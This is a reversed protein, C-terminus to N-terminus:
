QTVTIFRRALEVWNSFNRFVTTSVHPKCEACKKIAQAVMAKTQESSIENGVAPIGINCLEAFMDCMLKQPIEADQCFGAFKEMPTTNSNEYCFENVYQLTQEKLSQIDALCEDQYSGRPLDQFAHLPSYGYLTVKHSNRCFEPLHEGPNECNIAPGRAMLSVRYKFDLNDADLSIANKSTFQLIVDVTTNEPINLQNLASVHIENSCDEATIVITIFGLHDPVIKIGSLDVDFPEHIELTNAPFKSGITNNKVECTM